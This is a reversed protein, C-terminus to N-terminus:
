GNRGTKRRRLVLVLTTMGALSAILLVIWLTLPSSDGTDATGGRRSGGDSDDDDDSDGGDGGDNDGGGSNDGGNDGGGNDGGNPDDGPDPDAAAAVHLVGALRWGEIFPWGDSTGEYIEYNGYVGAKAYIPYDGAPDGQQYATTIPVDDVAFEGKHADFDFSDDILTGDAKKGDYGMTLAYAARQPVSDGVRLDTHAAAPVLPRPRIIASVTAPFPDSWDATFILSVGEADFVDTEDLPLGTMWAGASTALASGSPTWAGESTVWVGPIINPLDHLTISLRQGKGSPDYWFPLVAGTTISSDTTTVSYEIHHPMGDYYVDYGKAQVPLPVCTRDSPGPPMYAYQAIYVRDAYVPSYIDIAPTWGVFEFDEAVTINGPEFNAPDFVDQSLAGLSTGDLVTYSTVPTNKFTGQAGLDFRVNHYIATSSAPRPTYAYQATYTRVETVKSVLDVVPSWGIFTFDASDTKVSPVTFDSILGLPSDKKVVITASSSGDPLEGYVGGADFIVALYSDSVGPPQGSYLATYTVPGTVAAPSIAGATVEKNDTSRIWSRTFEYGTNPSVISDPVPIEQASLSAGSPVQYTIKRSGSITGNDGADFTVGYFYDAAGGSQAAYLATYVASGTVPNDIIKDGPVKKHDAQRIWYGTFEYGPNADVTPIDDEGLAAGSPVQYTIQTKGNDDM